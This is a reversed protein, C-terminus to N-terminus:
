KALLDERLLPHGVIEAQPSAARYVQNGSTHDTHRHTNVVYRVPKSTIGRLVALAAEASAPTYNTDVVVVDEDNVIFLVNSNVLLGPLDKRVLAFVGDALREVTFGPAALAVTEARSQPADVTLVMTVTMALAAVVSWLNRGVM